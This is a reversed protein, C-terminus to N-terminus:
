PCLLKNVESYVMGLDLDSMCRFHGQPCRAHGHLGCPRCALGAVEAVGAKGLPALPFFGLEKTTPGFVGVVPRGLAIAMHLPSSDNSVVVTAGALVAKLAGLSTRGALNLPKAGLRQAEAVVAAAAALDEPADSGVVVVRLGHERELKYALAGFKEPHWRKTAWVSSPALVAYAGSGAAAVASQRDAATFALRPYPSFGGGGAWAKVVALNKEAEFGLGARSVSHDLLFAGTAERFGWSAGGALWALASSRFSRHLCIVLQPRFSRLWRWQRWFGILGRDRGRKDYVACEVGFPNAELLRAGAPTTLLVIRAQPLKARLAALAPTALVIDGIFATHLVLVREPNQPEM